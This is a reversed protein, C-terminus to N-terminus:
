HCIEGKSQRRRAVPPGGTAREDRMAVPPGSSHHQRPSQAITQM